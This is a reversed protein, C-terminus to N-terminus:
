EQESRLVQLEEYMAPLDREAVAGMQIVMSLYRRTHGTAQAMALADARQELTLTPDSSLQVLRAAEDVFYDEIFLKKFERNSSLKIALQRQDRLQEYNNIENELNLVDSM